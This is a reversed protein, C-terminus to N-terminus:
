GGGGGVDKLRARMLSTLLDVPLDTDDPLQERAAAMAEDHRTTTPPPGYTVTQPQGRRGTGLLWIALVLAIVILSRLRLIM